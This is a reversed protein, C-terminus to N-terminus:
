DAYKEPKLKDQEKIQGINCVTGEFILRQGEKKNCIAMNTFLIYKRLSLQQFGKRKVIVKEISM